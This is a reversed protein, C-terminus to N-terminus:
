YTIYFTTKEVVAEKLQKYITKPDTTLSGTANVSLKNTTEPAKPNIGGHTLTNGRKLAVTFNAKGLVGAITGNDWDKRMKKGTKQRTLM